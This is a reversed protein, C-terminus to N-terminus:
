GGDTEAGKAVQYKGAASLKRLGASWAPSPRISKSKVEPFIMGLVKTVEQLQRQNKM